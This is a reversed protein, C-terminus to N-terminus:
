AVNGNEKEKDSKIQQKVNEWNSCINAMDQEIQRIRDKPLLLPHGYTFMVFIGKYSIEFYMQLECASWGSDM